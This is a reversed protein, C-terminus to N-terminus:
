KLKKYFIEDMVESTYKAGSEEVIIEALDDIDNRDIRHLNIRYHDGKSTITMEDSTVNVATIDNFNFTKGLASNIRIYILKSNYKVYNKFWFLRSLEFLILIFGLLILWPSKFGFFLGSGLVILPLALIVSTLRYWNLYFKEFKIRKM